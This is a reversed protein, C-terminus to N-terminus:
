AKNRLCGNCREVSRYKCFFRWIKSIRSCVHTYRLAISIHTLIKVYFPHFVYEAPQSLRKGEDALNMAFELLCLLQDNALQPLIDWTSPMEALSSDVCPVQCSFSCVLSRVCHTWKTNQKSFYIALTSCLKKTAISVTPRSVLHHILKLLLQESDDESLTASDANLKVTFTLAGFFRVQDDNSQLLADALDWGQPSRQLVRLTAETEAIKKGQEPAYLLRVLAEVEALSIPLGQLQQTAPDAM